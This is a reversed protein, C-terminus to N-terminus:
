AGQGGSFLWEFHHTTLNRLEDNM